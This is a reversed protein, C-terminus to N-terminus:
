GVVFTSSGILKGYKGRSLPGFGPWVFWIYKGPAFSHKNGRYIWTLTLQLQNAKPWISLLKSGGSWLQVNYYDAGSVSDWALLPPQTLRAADQPQLLATAGPSANVIVPLSFNGARDYSSVLYRYKADTQVDADVFSTGPGRYVIVGGPYRTVQAGATDASRPLRWSLTVLKAESRAIVDTLEPPPVTDLVSVRFFASGTNGESDVASCVVTTTGLPFQSKPPPACTVPLATGQADHAVPQTYTVVAGKVANVKLVIPKPVGSFVM